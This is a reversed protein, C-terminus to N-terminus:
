LWGRRMAEAGAQFRTDAGLEIMLDSVRRRVTRLGLGMTRAIQEDKAGAQLQRLLFVRESSRQGSLESVPVAREWYQEFLLTLAAVLAGQRVLLRPSDAYGLPEPLVAHTSDVIMLRTPMDDILRVEEGAEVRLHLAEPAEHLARLPYVARSRRGSEVARGVVQSIASERPMLWADPRLFLLDGRSHEILDTLLELANGGTSLEGDLAWVDEVEGPAPRTGAAVLLPVARSLDALRDRARLAADAERAIASELAEDVRQVLVREGEVRVIGLSTLAGLAAPVRAAEVGLATGVEALTSGSLPLVQQYRREDEASLGLASLVSVARRRAM